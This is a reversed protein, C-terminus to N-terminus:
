QCRPLDKGAVLVPLGMVETVVASGVTLMAVVTTVKSVVVVIGNRGALRLTPLVVVDAFVVAATDVGAASFLRTLEFIEM